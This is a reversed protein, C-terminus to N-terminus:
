QAQERDEIFDRGFLAVAADRDLIEAAAFLDDLDLLAIGIVEKGVTKWGGGWGIQDHALFVMIERQDTGGFHTAMDDMVVAEDARKSLATFTMEPFARYHHM